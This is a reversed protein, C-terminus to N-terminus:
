IYGTLFHRIKIFNTTAIFNQLFLRVMVWYSGIACGDECKSITQVAIAPDSKGGVKTM